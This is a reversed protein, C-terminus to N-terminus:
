ISKPRANIADRVHFTGMRRDDGVETTAKAALEVPKTFLQTEPM